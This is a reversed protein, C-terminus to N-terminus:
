PADPLPTGDAYHTEYLSGEIPAWTITGYGDLVSWNTASRYDLSSGTGLANYLSQPIYITGGAGGSAFPTGNFNNINSLTSLSGSRLILTSLSSCGSFALTRILRLRLVDLSELRTCGQFASAYIDGNLKPLVLVSLQSCGYFVNSGLSTVAPLSVTRLSSCGHFFDNNNSGYLTTIAPFSAEELATCGELVGSSSSGSPARVATVNTGSISKLSTSGAFFAKRIRTGNLVINEPLTFGTNIEDITYGSSVSISDVAAKAQAATMEINIGCKNRISDLLAIWDAQSLIVTSM